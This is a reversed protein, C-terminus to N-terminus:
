LELIWGYIRLMAETDMRCYERLDELTKEVDGKFRGELIAQYTISAQSGDSIELNTYSFEPLLAPLVKKISASNQMETKYIWREKFPTMLDIFRELIKNLSDAYEPFDDILEGIRTEEFSKNWAIISGEEGLDEIMKEILEIRMDHDPYVLFEKHEINGDEQMVHLSYQFPIQTYSHTRDFPPIAPMITEFDFFYLPYTFEDLFAKVNEKDFLEEGSKLLDIHLRQMTPLPYNDPIEDLTLFGQNYLDWEAGRMGGISFVSNEPIGKWCYDKFDCEFPEDCHKGIDIDPEIGNKLIAKFEEMKQPIDAQIPLITNLVSEQIFLTKEDLEGYRIYEKNLHMIDFEQIDLGAGSMIYYQVAADNIHYDKLSNSGKVEIAHWANGKRLLIDIACFSGNYNFAAEYIVSEGQNILRKTNTLWTGFNKKLDVAFSADRGGPFVKQALEGIKHGQDFKAQQASDPATRLHAKHKSLWLSKECQLGQIYKSKSIM